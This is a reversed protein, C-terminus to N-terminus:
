LMWWRPIVTYQTISGSEINLTNEVADLVPFEHNELTVKSSCDVDGMTCSRDESDIDIYGPNNAIEVAKGNVSLVGNGYIRILPRAIMGSFNYLKAIGTYSHEVEGSKLFRQPQRTFSLTFKGMRANADTPEIGGTHYAMYFEDPNFTDELRFYGTQEVLFNRLAAFNRKFDRIIICGYSHAIDRYKGQDILVDGNRGPIPIIEVDKEPQGFISDHFLYCDFDRFDKGNYILYNRSM